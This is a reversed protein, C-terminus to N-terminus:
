LYGMPTRPQMFWFDEYEDDECEEDEDDEKTGDETTAGSEWPPIPRPTRL